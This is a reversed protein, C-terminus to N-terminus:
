EAVVPKSVAGFVPVLAGDGNLAKWLLVKESTVNEIVVPTEANMTVNKIETVKNGNVLLLKYTNTDDAASSTITVKGDAYTVTTAVYKYRAYVTTDVKLTKLSDITVAEGGDKATFWGVFETGSAAVPTPLEDIDIAGDIVAATSVACEGGNADFTITCGDVYKAYVTMDENVDVFTEDTVKTDGDATTYWGLFVKGPKSAIPLASLKLAGNKLIATSVACEGGNADFTVTHLKAAEIKSVEGLIYKAVENAFPVDYHNHDAYWSQVLALKTTPAASDALHTGHLETNAVDEDTLANFYTDGWLSVDILDLGFDEAFKRLDGNHQADGRNCAFIGTDANYNGVYNGVPGQPTHTVIIPIAGRQLVGSIYYNRLLTDYSAPEGAAKSNIGMNITVYDDPKVDLLVNEVRGSNYYIVSDDGAKGHNAFGTFLSEDLFSPAVQGWSTGNGGNKTTSDGIAYISPKDAAVKAALQSITMKEVNSAALFTLDLVGDCVAVSFSNGSKTIGTAASIGDVVESTMTESTTTVDVKYNGNPVNAKFKYNATGTINSDGVTLDDTSEFGYGLKETYLTDTVQTYGEEPEASGFAFSLGHVNVKVKAVLGDANAAKVYLIAPSAGAEVTLKGNEFTIGKVDAETVGDKSLLSYTIQSDDKINGDKDRTVASYEAVVADEGTFPITISSTSKNFAVVDSSTTLTITKQAIKGDKAAMVTVEGAAGASVKLTATQAGTTELEVNAYEDALSWTVDSTMKLGDVDNVIASLDVKGVEDETEPVKLVDAESGVVISKIIPTYAEFRQINLPYTGQFAFYAQVKDDNAMDVEATKGILTGDTSYVEVWYKQVSKSPDASIVIDYWEGNSLGSISEAGASLSGGSYSATWEPDNGSNNPTIKYVGFGMEGSFKARFKIVYQSSQDKWQYVPVASGSGGNIGFEISKVDNEDKVLKMYRTGNSGFMSWNNLVPDKDKDGTATGVYGVLTDSYSNMDVPYGGDPAMHTAGKAQSGLIAFPTKITRVVDGKTVTVEAYCYYNGVGNLINLNAAAGDSTFTVYSDDAEAGHMSWEISDVTETLDGGLTGTAHVAIPYDVSTGDAPQTIVSPPVNTFEISSLDEPPLEGFEDSDDKERVVINDFNLVPNYRGALAYFGTIDNKSGNIGVILKDAPTNTGDSITVSVLSKATDVILKYHYWAGQTLTVVNGEVDNVTWKDSNKTSLKLLYGSQAGYNVNNSYYAFDSTKVAVNTDQNNGAKLAADFEVVYFDKGSTDATFTTELGRSNKNLSSFDYSIYKGYTADGEVLKLAASEQAVWSSADTASEYDQSYIIEAANAPLVFAFQAAMTVTAVGAVIKKFLKSKM